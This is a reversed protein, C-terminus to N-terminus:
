GLRESTRRLKKSSYNLNTIFQFLHASSVKEKKYLSLSYITLVISGAKALCM